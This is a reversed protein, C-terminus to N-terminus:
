IQPEYKDAVIIDKIEIKTKIVNLRYGHFVKKSHNSIFRHVKMM